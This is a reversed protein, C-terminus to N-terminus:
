SDSNNLSWDYEIFKVKVIRENALLFDASDDALYQTVFQVLSKGTVKFDNRYWKFILSLHLVVKDKDIRSGRPSRIYLKAAEELENEINDASYLGDKLVPCGMTSCNLAFHIRPDRFKKRIMNEIARLTYMKGGVNFKQMAFFRVRGFWSAIGKKIFKPNSKLKKIVGYISLANYSNIWFALQENRNTLSKPDFDALSEAHKVSANDGMMAMYSLNGAPDRYRALLDSLSQGLAEYESM